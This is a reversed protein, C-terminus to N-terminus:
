FPMDYEDPDGDKPKMNSLFLFENPGLWSRTDFRDMESARHKNDLVYEVANGQLDYPQVHLTLSKFGNLKSESGDSAMFEEFQKQLLEVWRSYPQGYCKFESNTKNKARISQTSNLKLCILGHCHMQHEYCLRMFWKPKKSFNYGLHNFAKKAIWRFREPDNRSEYYRQKEWRLTVFMLPQADILRDFWNFRELDWDPHERTTQTKIVSPANKGRRWWFRSAVENSPSPRFKQRTIKKPKELTVKKHLENIIM